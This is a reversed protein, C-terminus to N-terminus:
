KQPLQNPLSRSTTAAGIEQECDTMKARYTASYEEFWKQVTSDAPRMQESFRLEQRTMSGLGGTVTPHIDFGVAVAAGGLQELAQLCPNTALKRENADSSLNSLLVNVLNVRPIDKDRMAIVLNEEAILLSRHINQMMGRTRPDMQATVPSSKCVLCAACLGIALLVRVRIAPSHGAMARLLAMASAM